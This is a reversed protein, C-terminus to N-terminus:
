FLQLYSFLAFIALASGMVKGGVGWVLEEKRKREAICEM